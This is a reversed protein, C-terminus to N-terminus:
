GGDTTGNLACFRTMYYNILDIDIGQLVYFPQRCCQIFNPPTVYMTEEEYNRMCRDGTTIYCQPTDEMITEKEETTSDIPKKGWSHWENCFHTENDRGSICPIPIDACGVIFVMVLMSIIIIRKM